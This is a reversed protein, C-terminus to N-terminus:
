DSGSASGVQGCELCHSVATHEDECLECRRAANSSGGAAPQEANLLAAHNSLLGGVGGAPLPTSHGCEGCRVPSEGSCCATCHSHGCALLRPSRAAADFPQQCRSCRVSVRERAEEVAM